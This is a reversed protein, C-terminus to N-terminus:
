VGVTASSHDLVERESLVATLLTSFYFYVPFFVFGSHFFTCSLNWGPSDASCDLANVVLGSSTNFHEYIRIDM